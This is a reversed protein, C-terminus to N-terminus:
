KIMAEEDLGHETIVPLRRDIRTDIWIEDFGWAACKWVTDLWGIKGYKYECWIRNKEWEGRNKIKSELGEFAGGVIFLIDKTNIELM